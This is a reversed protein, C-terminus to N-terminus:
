GDDSKGRVSQATDSDQLLNPNSFSDLYEQLFVVASAQDIIARHTKTRKGAARLRSAAIKTSCYEDQFAIGVGSPLYPKLSEAFLRVQAASTGEEGDERLPLGVVVAEVKRMECIASIRRLAEPRPYSAVTEVPHALIGLGDSGAVGIRAEGYDLAILRQPAILMGMIYKGPNLHLARNGQRQMKTITIPSGSQVQQIQKSPFSSRIGTRSSLTTPDM